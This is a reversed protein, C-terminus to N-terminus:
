KVSSLEFFTILTIVIAFGIASAVAVVVWEYSKKKVVWAAQLPRESIASKEM